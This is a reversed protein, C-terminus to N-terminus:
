ESKKQKNKLRERRNLRTQAESLAKASNPVEWRRQPGIKCLETYIAEMTRGKKKEKRVWADRGANKIKPGRRNGIRKLVDELAEWADRHGVAPGLANREWLPAHSYRLQEWLSELARWLATDLESRVLDDNQFWRVDAVEPLLTRASPFLRDILVQTAETIKTECDKYIEYTPKRIEADKEAGSSAARYAQWHPKWRRIIKQLELIAKKIGPLHERTLAM